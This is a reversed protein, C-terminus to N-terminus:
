APEDDVGQSSSPGRERKRQPPAQTQSPVQEQNTKEELGVGELGLNGIQEIDELDQSIEEDVEEEEDKWLWQKDM